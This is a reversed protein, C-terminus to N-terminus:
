VKNILELANEGFVSKMANEYIRLQLETENWQGNTIRNQIATKIFPVVADWMKAKRDSPLRLSDDASALLSNKAEKYEKLQREMLQEKNM